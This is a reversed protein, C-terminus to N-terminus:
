PRKIPVNDQVWQAYAPLSLDGNLEILCPTEYPHLEQFRQSLSSWAASTTKFIAPIEKSKEVQGKWRYISEMPPLINACAILQEAVLKDSIQHATSADPFTAYLILLRSENM